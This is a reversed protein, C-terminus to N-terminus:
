PREYGDVHGLLAVHCAPEFTKNDPGYGRWRTCHCCSLGTGYADIIVAVQFLAPDDSENNDPFSFDSTLYLLSVVFCSNCM